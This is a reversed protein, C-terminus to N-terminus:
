DFLLLIDLPDCGGGGSGGVGGTSTGGAGTSDTAADVTIGGAGLPGAGSSGASGGASAAGTGGAGQSRCVNNICETGVPCAARSLCEVCRREDVLGVLGRAACDETTTCSGSAGAAGGSDASGDRATFLSPAKADGCAFAVTCGLSVSVWAWTVWGKKRVM